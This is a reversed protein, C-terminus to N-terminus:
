DFRDYRDRWNRVKYDRSHGRRYNSTHNKNKPFDGSERPYHSRHHTARSGHTASAAYSTYTTRTTRLTHSSSSSYSTCSSYSTYSISSCKRIAPSEELEEDHTTTTKKYVRIDTILDDLNYNIDCTGIYDRFDALVKDVDVEVDAFWIRISPYKGPVIRVGLVADNVDTGVIWMVVNMIMDKIPSLPSIENHSSESDSVPDSEKNEDVEEETEPLNKIVLERVCEFGTGMFIDEWLPMLYTGRHERFFWLGPSKRSKPDWTKNMMINVCTWLIAITDFKVCSKPKWDSYNSSRTYGFHWKRNLKLASGLHIREESTFLDMCRKTFEHLEDGSFKNICTSILNLREDDHLTVLNHCAYEFLKKSDYQELEAECIDTM